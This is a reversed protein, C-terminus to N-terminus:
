ESPIGRLRALRYGAEPGRGNEIHLVGRFGDLKLEHLWADGLPVHASLLPRLPDVMPLQVRCISLRGSSCFKRQSDRGREKTFWIERKADFCM